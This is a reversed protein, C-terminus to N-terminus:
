CKSKTWRGTKFGNKDLKTQKPTSIGDDSFDMSGEKM